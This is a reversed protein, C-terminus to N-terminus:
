LIFRVNIEEAMRTLGTPLPSLDKLKTTSVAVPRDTWQAPGSRQMPYRLQYKLGIPAYDVVIIPM